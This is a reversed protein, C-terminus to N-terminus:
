HERACRHIFRWVLNLGLRCISVHKPRTRAVSIDNISHSTEEGTRLWRMAYKYSYYRCLEQELDPLNTYLESVPSAVGISLGSLGLGISIFQHWKRPIIKIKIGSETSERKRIKELHIYGHNVFMHRDDRIIILSLSLVSSFYVQLPLPLRLSSFLPFVKWLLIVEQTAAVLVTKVSQSLFIGVYIWIWRISYIIRVLIQVTISKRNGCKCKLLGSCVCHIFISDFWTLKHEFSGGGLRNEKGMSSRWVWVM